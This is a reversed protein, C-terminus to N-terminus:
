DPVMFLVDPVMEVDKTTVLLEGVNVLKTTGSFANPFAGKVRTGGVVFPAPAKVYELVFVSTAVIALFTTVMTPTPVEVM